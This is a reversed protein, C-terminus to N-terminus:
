EAVLDKTKKEVVALADKLEKQEQEINSIKASNRLTLVIDIVLLALVIWHFAILAQM